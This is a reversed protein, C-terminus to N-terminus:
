FQIFCNFVTFIICIILSLNSCAKAPTFVTSQTSQTNSISTPNTTMETPSVSPKLTPSYSPYKTPSKSPSDSLVTPQATPNPVPPATPTPTPANTDPLSIQQFTNLNGNRYGGFLYVMNNVRIAAYQELTYELSGGVTISNASIDIVHILNINQNNGNIGGFVLIENGYSVANTRSLPVSLVAPFFQWTQNAIDQLDNSVDISEITNRNVSNVSSWGGIVYAREKHTLCSMGTYRGQNLYAIAPNMGNANFYNFNTWWEDNTISYIQVFQEGTGYSRGGILMLYQNITTDISVLCAAPVTYPAQWETKLSYIRTQTNLTVFYTGYDPQANDTDTELIYLMNNIQTFYQSSGILGPSPFYNGQDNFIGNQFTVLQQGNTTGGIILITDTSSDYGLAMNRDARPMTTNTIETSNYMYASSVGFIFWALFMNIPM